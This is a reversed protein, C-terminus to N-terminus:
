PALTRAPVGAVTAGAPVDETVVAGAGVVADAGIKLKPLVTAGAGVFARDGVEIEGCLVARPGIHCGNGIRCDHDVSAGTNLISQAGVSAETGVLAGMLVQAGAAIRASRECRAAAHLVTAPQLGHGQLWQAIELRDAGKAGGIAVAFGPPPGSRASLWALFGDRGIHLPAEPWPPAVDARDFVAAIPAPAVADRLVRAHGAAGWLILPRPPSPTDVPPM